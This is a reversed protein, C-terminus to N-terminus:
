CGTMKTKLSFKYGSIILTVSRRDLLQLTTYAFLSLNLQNNQKLPETIVSIVKKSLHPLEMRIIFDKNIKWVENENQIEQNETFSQNRRLQTLERLNQLENEMEKMKRSIEVNHRRLHDLESVDAVLSKNTSSIQTNESRLM